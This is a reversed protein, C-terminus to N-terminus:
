LATARPLALSRWGPYTASGFGCGTPRALLLYVLVVSVLYGGVRLVKGTMGAFASVLFLMISACFNYDDRDVLGM